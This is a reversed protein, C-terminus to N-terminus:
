PKAGEGLPTRKVKLRVVVPGRAVTLDVESGPDGRLYRRLDATSLDRVLVGDVMLLQDGPLLGDRTPPAGLDKVVVEGTEADRALVAGVSGM